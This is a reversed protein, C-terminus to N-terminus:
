SIFYLIFNSLFWLSLNLDLNNRSSSSCSSNNNNNNNNNNNHHTFDNSVMEQKPLEGVRFSGPWVLDLGDEILLPASNMWPVGIVAESFRAAAAPGGTKHVVLSHPQLGLSRAASAPSFHHGGGLGMASMVMMMRHSQHRKAAGRERKHANQHGGLAQSSYFKRMCFNCSFIKHHNNNNNRNNTPKNNNNNNDHHDHSHSSNPNNHQPKNLGLSLWDGMNDHGYQHHHHDTTQDSARSELDQHDHDIAAQDQEEEEEEEINQDSTTNLFMALSLQSIHNHTHKISNPNLSIPNPQNNFLPIWNSTISLYPISIYLTATSINIYFNIM